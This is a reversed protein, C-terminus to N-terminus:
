SLHGAKRLIRGLEATLREVEDHLEPPVADGQGEESAMELATELDDMLAALHEYGDLRSKLRSYRTSVEQARNQDDWFDPTRM